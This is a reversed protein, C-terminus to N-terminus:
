NEMPSKPLNYKENKAIAYLYKIGHHFYEMVKKMDMYVPCDTNQEYQYCEPIMDWLISKQIKSKIINHARGLDKDHTMFPALIGRYWYTKSPCENAGWTGHYELHRRPENHLKSNCKIHNRWWNYDQKYNNGVYVYMTPGSFDDYVNLQMGPMYIKDVAACNNWGNSILGQPRGFKVEIDDYSVKYVYRYDSYECFSIQFGNFTIPDSWYNRPNIFNWFDRNEKRFQSELELILDRATSDFIYQNKDPYLFMM